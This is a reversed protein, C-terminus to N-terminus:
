LQKAASSDKVRMLQEEPVLKLLGEGALRRIMQSDIGGKQGVKSLATYLLVNAGEENRQL